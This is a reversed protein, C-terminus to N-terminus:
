VLREDFGYLSASVNVVVFPIALATHALVLGLPSGVIQLRAYFFYVGIAVIIAIALAIGVFVTHQWALHMLEPWNRMLFDTTTVPVEGTRRASPASGSQTARGAYRGSRYM